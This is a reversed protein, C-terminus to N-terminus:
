AHHKVVTTHHARVPAASAVATTGLTFAGIMLGMCLNRMMRSFMTGSEMSFGTRSRLHDCMASRLTTPLFPTM